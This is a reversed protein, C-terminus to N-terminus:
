SYEILDINKIILKVNAKAIILDKDIGCSITYSHIKLEKTGPSTSTIKSTHNEFMNYMSTAQSIVM